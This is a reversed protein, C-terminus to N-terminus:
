VTNPPFSCAEDGVSRYRCRELTANYFLLSGIALCAFGLVISELALVLVCLPCLPFLALLPSATQGSRVGPLVGVFM